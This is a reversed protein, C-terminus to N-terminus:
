DDRRPSGAGSVGLDLLADALTPRGTKRLRCQDLGAGSLLLCGIVIAATSPEPVAASNAEKTVGWNLLVGDLEDQDITGTPLNSTWIPPALAAANGWNLLVLDLDAQEVAGSANYDGPLPDVSGGLFAIWPELEGQPNHAIGVIHRGDPTIDLAHSVHWGQLQDALGYDTKLVDVLNRMGRSRSWIFPDYTNVGDPLFFGGVVTGDNSVGRGLAATPEDWEGLPVIGQADSWLFPQVPHTERALTLTGTVYEGSASIAEARSGVANDPLEGLIRTGHIEDWSFAIPNPGVTQTGVVISGDDSVDNASGADSAGDLLDLSVGGTSSTWRWPYGDPGSGVVSSGDRSAAKPAADFNQLLQGDLDWM